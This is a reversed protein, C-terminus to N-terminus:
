VQRKKLLHETMELLVQSPVNFGKYAGFFFQLNDNHDYLIGGGPVFAYIDEELNSTTGM